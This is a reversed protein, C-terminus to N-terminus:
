YDNVDDSGFIMYSIDTPDSAADASNWNKFQVQSKNTPLSPEVVVWGGFISSAIVIPERAFPTAYVMHVDGTGNDTLSTAEDGNGISLSPTGATWIIKGAIMRPTRWPVEVPRLKRAYLPNSDSGYLVLYFGGDAAAGAADSRKLRITSATRSQYQVIFKASGIPTTAVAYNATAFPRALTITVDGTGNKVITAIQRAGIDVTPTTTTIKLAVVRPNSFTGRVEFQDKRFKTADSSLWGLAIASTTGPDVASDSESRWNLTSKAMNGSSYQFATTAATDSSSTAGVILPVRGFGRQLTCSVNASSASTIASFDAGGFNFTAAPAATSVTELGILVPALRNHRLTRLM